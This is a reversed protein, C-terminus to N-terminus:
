KAWSLDGVFSIQSSQSRLSESSGPRIRSFYGSRQQRLPPSQLEGLTDDGEESERGQPFAVERGRGFLPQPIPVSENSSTFDTSVSGITQRRRPLQSSTRQESVDRSFSTRESESPITSLRSSYRHPIFDVDNMPLAKKSTARKPTQDDSVEAWSSSPFSQRVVPYQFRVSRVAAIHSPSIPSSSSRPRDVGSSYSANTALSETSEFLIPRKSARKARLSGTSPTDDPQKSRPFTDWNRSSSSRTRRLGSADTDTSTTSLSADSPKSVLPSAKSAKSGGTSPTVIRITSDNASQEFDANAAAFCPLDEPCIIYAGEETEPQPRSQSQPQPTEWEPQREEPLIPLKPEDISRRIPTSVTSQRSLTSHSYRSSSSVSLSNALTEVDSSTTSTSTRLPKGQRVPRPAASEDTSVNSPHETPSVRNGQKSEFLPGPAYRPSLIQSPLTPFPSKAYAQPGSDAVIRITSAAPVNSLSDPRRQLPRRSASKPPPLPLPRPPPYEM